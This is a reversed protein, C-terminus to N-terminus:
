YYQNPRLFVYIVAPVTNHCTNNFSYLFIVLALLIMSALDAACLINCTCVGSLWQVRSRDALTFHRWSM